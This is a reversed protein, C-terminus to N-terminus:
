IFSLPLAFLTLTSLVVPLKLTTKNITTYNPTLNISLISNFLINIYFYTNIIAGCILIILLMPAQQTLTIITLWKPIFGTLPPIGRLSLLIIPLIIQILPSLSNLKNFQTNNSQTNYHLISFLPIIIFCYIVYYTITIFPKLAYLIRTIWGIHTISSYAIITRLHSQNIGIMGGLLANIIAITIIFTPALNTLLFALIVLPALKQWTALIICSIWSLSTIVPPFWFHFPAIGLKLIIASMLIINSLQFSHTSWQALRTILIIRSGLAQAIFYKITAETEQNSKSITIIPIFRLINIEISIWLFLWNTRSLAIISRTILTITTILIFPKNLNFMFGHHSSAGFM